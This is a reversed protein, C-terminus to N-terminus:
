GGQEGYSSAALTVATLNESSQKLMQLPTSDALLGNPNLFFSIQDWPDHDGLAAFVKEIGALGFQWVPYRYDKPGLCLALLKGEVRRKDLAHRSIGLRAAAEAQSMVGGEMELLKRKAALGRARAGDLPEGIHFLLVAEETNM